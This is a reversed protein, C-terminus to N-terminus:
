KKLSNLLKELEEFSRIANKPLKEGKEGFSLMNATPEITVKSEDCMSKKLQFVNAFFDYVANRKNPGFDHGEEPFHVNTVKDSAKYYDYIHKIYPLELTPVTSTWDKGDSVILMPKPANMAALEANTTGGCAYFVPLGSECPCGGDFHSSLSVVPALATFRQDLATLLVTQSGGGSGGNVGVRKKDVDKRNYMFDLISIGNLAQIVQAASKKHAEEPFQLMSEGWAFLDYDVCIAGMRALTAMRQQQDKRYRGDLFHGNPCVILPFQGKIVPKYISGCVYLGPLTELSFNQVTYGNYVRQKSIVPKANMRAKLLLDLGLRERVEKRLCEKRKNWQVSDSYLSNLYHLMKVGDEDTRRAYEYNKIKYFNGEQKVFKYDFPALVNSLSEEVSYPRIRSDAYDLMKGDVVVDTWKLRVNFRKSIDMLVEKLPKQYKNDSNQKVLNQQAFLTSGSLALAASLMVIKINM